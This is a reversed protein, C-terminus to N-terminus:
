SIMATGGSFGGPLPRFGTQKEETDGNRRIKWLEDVFALYEKEDNYCAFPVAYSQLENNEVWVYFAVECHLSPSLQYIARHVGDEPKIPSNYTVCKSKYQKAFEEPNVALPVRTMKVKDMDRIWKGAPLYAFKRLYDEFSTVSFHHVLNPFLNTRWYTHVRNLHDYNM